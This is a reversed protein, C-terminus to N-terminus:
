YELRAVVGRVRESSKPTRGSNKCRGPKLAVYSASASADCERCPLTSFSYKGSETVTVSITFDNRQRHWCGSEQLAKLEEDTIIEIVIHNERDLRANQSSKTDTPTTPSTLTAIRREELQMMAMQQAALEAPSIGAVMLSNVTAADLSPNLGIPVGTPSSVTSACPPARPLPSLLQPMKGQLYAELHPPLLALRHAHCLLASSEPPQPMDGEGTKIYRRWQHCWARPILHYDGAVLPCKSIGEKMPSPFDIDDVLKHTPVGRTRTYVNRVHSNSLPKKRELKAQEERDRESRRATETEVLCQLCEGSTSELQTSHPYLKKLIKWAQKDLLRRRSRALKAGCRQLNEHCCLLDSNADPWPAHVDSLRRTRQRLQKKSMKKKPSGGPANDSTHVKELWLLTSRVWSRSVYYGTKPEPSSLLRAVVSLELERLHQITYCSPGPSSISRGKKDSKGTSSPESLAVDAGLFVHEATFAVINHILEPDNYFRCTQQLASLDLARLYTLIHVQIESPIFLLTTPTTSM